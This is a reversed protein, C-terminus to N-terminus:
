SPYQQRAHAVNIIEIADSAVCYVVVYNPHAVIERTGPVRGNRFLYPHDAAPLVATEITRRLDRAAQPSREAIFRIIELLDDRASLKWIVPLTM